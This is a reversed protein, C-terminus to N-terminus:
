SSPDPYLHILVLNSRTTWTPGGEYKQYDREVFLTAQKVNGQSPPSKFAVGEIPSPLNITVTQATGVNDPDIETEAMDIQPNAESRVSGNAEDWVEWYLTLESLKDPDAAVWTVVSALANLEDSGFMFSINQTCAGDYVLCLAPSWDPNSPNVTMTSVPAEYVLSDSEESEYPDSSSRGEVGAGAVLPSGKTTEKPVIPTLAFEYLVSPTYSTNQQTSWLQNLEETTLNQFIAQVHVKREEVDPDNEITLVMEPTEHFVRIVSGLLGLVDTGETTSSDIAVPTILCYARLHLVDTSLGGPYMGSSEFRYFFMNILNHDKNSESATEPSGVLVRNENGGDNIEDELFDALEKCFESLSSNTAAM